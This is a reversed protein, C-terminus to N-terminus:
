EFEAYWERWMQPFVPNFHETFAPFPLSLLVIVLDIGTVLFTVEYVLALTELCFAVADWFAFRDEHWGSLIITILSTIIVLTLMTQAPSRLNTNVRMYNAIEPTQFAWWAFLSVAFGIVACTILTKLVLWLYGKSSLMHPEEEKPAFHLVLIALTHSVLISLLVLHISLDTVSSMDQCTAPLTSPSQFLFQLISIGGLPLLFVTQDCLFTAIPLTLLAIALFSWFLVGPKMITQYFSNM